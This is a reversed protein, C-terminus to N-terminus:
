LATNPRLVQRPRRRVVTKQACRRVGLLVLNSIVAPTGAVDDGDDDDDDDEDDRLRRRGNRRELVTVM